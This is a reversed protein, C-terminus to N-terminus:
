RDNDQRRSTFTKSTPSYQSATQDEIKRIAELEDEKRFGAFHVNGSLPKGPDRNQNAPMGRLQDSFDFVPAKKEEMKCGPTWFFEKLNAIIINRQDRSNPDNIDHTSYCALGGSVEEVRAWGASRLREGGILDVYPRGFYNCWVVDWIWGSPGRMEATHPRFSYALQGSKTREPYFPPRLSYGSGFLEAASKPGYAEAYRDVDAQIANAIYAYDALGTLLVSEFYRHLLSSPICNDHFHFHVDNHWDSRSVAIAGSYAPRSKRSLLVMWAKAHAMPPEFARATEALSFDRNVPEVTNWKEPRLETSEGISRLLATGATANAINGRFLCGMSLM